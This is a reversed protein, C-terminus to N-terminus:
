AAAERIRKTKEDKVLIRYEKSTRFISVEKNMLTDFTFTESDITHDQIILYIEDKPLKLRHSIRSEILLIVPDDDDIFTAIGRIDSEVPLHTFENESQIM